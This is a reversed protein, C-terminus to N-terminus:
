EQQRKQEETLPEAEAVQAADTETSATVTTTEANVKDFSIDLESLDYDVQAAQTSAAPKKDLEEM